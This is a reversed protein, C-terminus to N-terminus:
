RGSVTNLRVYLLHHDAYARVELEPFTRQLLVLAAEVDNRPLMGSVHLGHLSSRDFYILGRQHRALEDLVEDLPRAHVELLQKEFAAETSSVRIPAQKFDGTADFSLSEAAGVTIAAQPALRPRVLVQSELMEVVTRGAQARIIFRTGLARIEGQETVVVLPRLPDPAVDVQLEGKLLEIRREEPAYHINAASASALTLASGDELVRKLLQGRQAHLDAWVPATGGSVLLALAPLVVLALAALRTGLRRRARRKESMTALSQVLTQRGARSSASEGGMLRALELSRELRQSVDTHSPDLAKWTEYGSRASAREAPDDASLAVIWEAAQQEISAAGM